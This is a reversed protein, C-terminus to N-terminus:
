FVFKRSVILEAAAEPRLALGHGHQAVGVDDLDIVNGGRIRGIVQHHLEDVADGQLLIHLYLADEIPLLRQVKGHQDGLAQLMGVAPADDVPVDLGVIHHHQLIAADLDHVEANGPDHALAVGQGLLGQAGHVIDRRLLGLAAVRVGPGIDIGQANHHILHHRATRGEVPLRRHRHGNLMDVAPGGLGGGQIGIDGHAQLLDNELAHCQLWFVPIGRCRFHNLIHLLEALVRGNVETVLSGGWGLVGNGDPPNGLGIGLGRCFLNRSGSGILGSRRSSTDGLRLLRGLPGLLRVLSGSPLGDALIGIGHTPRGHLPFLLLLALPLFSIANSGNRHDHATHHGDNGNAREQNRHEIPCQKVLVLVQHLHGIEDAGLIGIIQNGFIRIKGYAKLWLM